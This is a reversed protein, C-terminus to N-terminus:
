NEEIYMDSMEGKDEISWSDVIIEGNDEFYNAKEEDTMRSWDSESVKVEKHGTRLHGQIYDFDARITIITDAM